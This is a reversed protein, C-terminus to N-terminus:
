LPELDIAVSSGVEQLQLCDDVSSVKAYISVDDTFLRLSSSKLHSTSHSKRFGYHHSSLVKNAHLVEPVKGFIIREMTKVILSARSIPQYNSVFNKKDRKFVPVVKATVWDRPLSGTHMSLNFLYALPSSISIACHKLLFGPFLDPGCAKSADIDCLIEYVVAPSFEVSNILSPSFDM